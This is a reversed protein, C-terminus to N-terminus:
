IRDLVFTSPALQAGHRAWAPWFAVRAKPTLDIHTRNDREETRSQRRL